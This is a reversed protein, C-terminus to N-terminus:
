LEEVATFEYVRSSDFCFPRDICQFTLSSRPTLFFHGCEMQPIRAKLPPFFLRSTFNVTVVHPKRSVEGSYGNPWSSQNLEAFNTELTYSGSIKHKATFNHDIKINFQKRAWDDGLGTTTQSIGNADVDSGNRSRVWRITATNLGDSTLGNVMAGFYNATPMNKLLIKYIYGTSDLSPRNPDWVGGGPPLVISGGPCDAPGFPVMNGGPDLRSTGFVSACQLGAGTYAGGTPNYLPPVPNGLADVATMVRTAAPTASPATNAVGYRQPNWGDYWRMVGLKATDTLVSGDVLVRERHINQEWLAYFFTQNKKIPGGYAVSYEHNNYWNREAPKGTNPDITHNNLWTNPDLATNRVNWVASGSYRNTGSRTFIQVQANGRGSEADVPTLILRVEGVLDPTVTTTGFVGNISFRGDTVSLGDRTTNVTTSPQGAFTDLSTGATAYGERYGPLVRVLDLVNNTVLPLDTVRKSTLVEGISASSSALISDAAVTVDVSTSANGVELKFNLRVPNAPSVNVEDYASTKFGTLSATLKYIGPLIAPFNYAGAENTLTTSVVGTQTNTATITVGPILAKSPDQVIGGISSNVQAFASGAWIICVFTAISSVRQMIDGWSLIPLRLTDPLRPFRLAPRHAENAFKTFPRTVM